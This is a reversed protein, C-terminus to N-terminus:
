YVRSEAQSKKTERSYYNGFWILHGPLRNTGWVRPLPDNDARATYEVQTFDQNSKQKSQRKMSMVTAVIGMVMSAANIATAATSAWSASSAAVSTAASATAM